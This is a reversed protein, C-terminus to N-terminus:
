LFTEKGIRICRVQVIGNAANPYRTTMYDPNLEQSAEVVELPAKLNQSLEVINHTM